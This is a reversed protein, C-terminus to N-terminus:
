AIYDDLGGMWQEAVAAHSTYVHALGAGDREFASYGNIIVGIEEGIDLGLIFQEQFNWAPLGCLFVKSLFL